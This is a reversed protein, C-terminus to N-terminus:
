TVQSATRLADEFVAGLEDADVCLYVTQPMPARHARIEDVMARAADSPEVGENIGIFPFAIVPLSVRAAAILAARTSRRVSEVGIKLGPEEMMPAHIVKKCWLRGAGTVVAAGVAIPASERAEAEIEAGGLDRLTQAVGHSMTGLSNGPSVVADVAMERLDSKAVHVVMSLQAADRLNATRTL